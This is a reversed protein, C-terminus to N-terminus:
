LFRDSIKNCITCALALNTEDTQGGHKQACRM